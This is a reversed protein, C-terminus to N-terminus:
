VLPILIITHTPPLLTSHHVLGKLIHETSHVTCLARYQTCQVTSEETYQTYLVTNLQPYVICHEACHEISYKTSCISYQTCKETSYKTCNYQVTYLVYETSSYETVNHNDEQVPNVNIIFYSYTVIRIELNNYERM